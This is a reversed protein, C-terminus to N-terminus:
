GVASKGLTRGWILYITFVIAVGIIQLLFYGLIVALLWTWFVRSEKKQKSQDVYIIYALLAMCGYDIILELM